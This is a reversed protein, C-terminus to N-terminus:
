AEDFQITLTTEGPPLVGGEQVSSNVVRPATNDIAFDLSFAGLSNGSVSTLAGAAIELTHPGDGLPPSFSVRITNGDVLTAASAGGDLVVDTAAFTDRLMTRSLSLDVHEI